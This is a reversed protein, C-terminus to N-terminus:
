LVRLLIIDENIRGNVKSPTTSLGKFLKNLQLKGGRMCEEITDKPKRLTAQLSVEPDWGQLTTGKVSFGSSGSAYYAGLKRNKTNYVWLQNSGIIKTPPISVLGLESFEKLYKLKEVQKIPPKAKRAKPKRNAKKFDHYRIGDELMENLWTILRKQHHKTLYNYSEAVQEDTDILKIENLIPHIVNAVVTGFIKPSQNAQLYKYLNFGTDRCDNLFFKDIEGLVEGLFESVKAQINDQISPRDKTIPKEKLDNTDPKKLLEDIKDNIQKIIKSEFKSGNTHLRCLWGYTRSFNFDNDSVKSFAKIDNPRHVKIWEKMYFLADAGEKEYSYWSLAHTLVKKFDPHNNDLDIVLPETIKEKAM